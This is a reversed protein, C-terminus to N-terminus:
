LTKRSQMTWRSDHSRTKRADVLLAGCSVSRRERWNMGSVIVIGTNKAAKAYIVSVECQELANPLVFDPFARYHFTSPKVLSLAFVRALSDIQSTAATSLDPPFRM